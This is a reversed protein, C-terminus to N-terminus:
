FDFVNQPKEAGMAALVENAIQKKHEDNCNRSVTRTSVSINYKEKIAAVVDDRNPIKGKKKAAIRIGEEIEELEIKRVKGGAVSKQQQNENYVRSKDLSVIFSQVTANITQEELTMNDHEEPLIGYLGYETIADYIKYKLVPDTYKEVAEKMNGWFTFGVKTVDTM